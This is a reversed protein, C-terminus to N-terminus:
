HTTPRLFPLLFINQLQNYRWRLSYLLQIRVQDNYSVKVSCQKRQPTSLTETTAQSNLIEFAQSLSGQSSSDALQSQQLQQIFTSM